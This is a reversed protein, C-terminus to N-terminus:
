EICAYILSYCVSGVMDSVLVMVVVVVAVVVLVVSSCLESTAATCCISKSLWCTFLSFRARLVVMFFSLIFSASSVAVRRWEMGAEMGSLFRIFAEPDKEPVVVGRRSEALGSTVEGLVLM